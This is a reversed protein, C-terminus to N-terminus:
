MITLRCISDRMSTYSNFYEVATEVAKIRPYHESNTVSANLTFYSSRQSPHDSLIDYGVAYAQNM